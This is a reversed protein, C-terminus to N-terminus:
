GSPCRGKNGVIVLLLVLIQLHLTKKSFKDQSESLYIEPEILGCRSIVKMM